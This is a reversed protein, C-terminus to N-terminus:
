GTWDTRDNPELYEHRPDFLVVLWLGVSVLILGAGAFFVVALMVDFVIM